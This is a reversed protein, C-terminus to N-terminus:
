VHIHGHGGKPALTKSTNLGLSPVSIVEHGVMHSGSCFPDDIAEDGALDGGLFGEASQTAQIQQGLDFTHTVFFVARSLGNLASLTSM